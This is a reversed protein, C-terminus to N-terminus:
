AAVVVTAALRDHGGRNAREDFLATVAPMLYFPVGLVARILAPVFGPPRGTRMRVVKIRMLRKGPTAGTGATLATDYVVLAVQTVALVTLFSDPVVVALVVYVPLFVIVIDALKALIRGGLPALLAEGLEGAAVPRVDARHRGLM